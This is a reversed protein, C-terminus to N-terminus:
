MKQIKKGNEEIQKALKDFSNKLELAIKILCKNSNTESGNNAQTSDQTATNQFIKFFFSVTLLGFSHSQTTVTENNTSNLNIENVENISM